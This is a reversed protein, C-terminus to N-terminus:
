KKKKVGKVKKKRTKKNKDKKRVAKIKKLLRGMKSSKKKTKKVSKKKTKKAKAKKNKERKKARSIKKEKEEKKEARQRKKQKKERIESLEGQINNLDRQTKIIRAEIEKIHSENEALEYVEACEECTFDEALAKEESVEIDCAKCIYYRKNNRNNLQENLYEIRKELTEELKVLCKEIDLTWFYIYWGKRKDKKRIFSVLGFASLKYLINRVQNITLEMKKAILFENVDKKGYLIDVIKGSEGGAIEQVLDNLLNKQM